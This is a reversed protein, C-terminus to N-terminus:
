APCSRVDIGSMGEVFLRGCTDYMSFDTAFINIGARRAVAIADEPVEKGRVFVIIDMDLMEATRVAQANCLGTILVTKESDNQVMALVDSMLDSAFVQVYEKDLNDENFIAIPEAEIIEIVEKATM